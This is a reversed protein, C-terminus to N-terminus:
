ENPQDVFLSDYRQLDADLNLLGMPTYHPENICYIDDPDEIIWCNYGYRQQIFKIISEMIADRYFDHQVLVISIAGEYSNSLIMMLKVFLIQNNMIMASYQIDFDVSQVFEPLPMATNNIPAINTLLDTCDIYGSYLSSLNYVMIPKNFYGQILSILGPNDIFIIM